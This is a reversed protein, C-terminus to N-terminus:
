VGFKQHNAKVYIKSDLSVKEEKVKMVALTKTWGYDFEPQPITIIDTRHSKAIDDDADRSSLDVIM